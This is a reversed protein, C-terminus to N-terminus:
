KHGKIKGKRILTARKTEELKSKFATKILYLYLYEQMSKPDM